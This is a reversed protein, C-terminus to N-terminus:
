EFLSALIKAGMEAHEFPKTQPVKRLNIIKVTAQVENAAVAAFYRNMQQHLEIDEEDEIERERKEAITGIETVKRGKISLDKRRRELIVRPDFELLVIIDPKLKSVVEKPMGPYYGRGMKIALHTDIVVDGSIKAIREAAKVQVFRYDKLSLKKRMDDRNEIGFKDRAVKMMYDGFNVIKVNPKMKSFIQLTTTKGAGPVAALIVKM